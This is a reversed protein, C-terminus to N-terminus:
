DKKLEEKDEPLWDMTAAEGSGYMYRKQANMAMGKVMTGRTMNVHQGASAGMEQAQAENDFDAGMFIVQWGRARCEDVLKRASARTHERSQNNMGDTMISLCCKAPSDSLALSVIRGIADYYPTWGEPLAEKPELPRWDGLPASRRIIDFRMTGAPSDFTVVTVRTPVSREQLGRVYANISGVAELYLGGNAMSGSRDLLIYDAQDPVPAQESKGFDDAIPM